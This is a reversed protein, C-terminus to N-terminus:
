TVFTVFDTIQSQKEFSKRLKQLKQLYQQLIEITKQYRNTGQKLTDIRAWLDWASSDVSYVAEWTAKDKLVDLKVGFGHIRIWKPLEKRLTLIIKRITKTSARRCLSGIAIYDFILGHEKFLDLCYLYDELKWGQIVPIPRSFVNFKDMLELLKIHNKLTRNIQDKATIKYKELIQPECPYDRLAFMTAKVKKVYKLYEEDSTTYGGHIFSSPFGGCDIFLIRACPPPKNNKTMYNILIYPYKLKRVVKHQTGSAPSLFFIKVYHGGLTKESM